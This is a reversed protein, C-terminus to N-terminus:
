TIEIYLCGGLPRTVNGTERRVVRIMAPNKCLLRQRNLTPDQLPEPPISPDEHCYQQGEHEIM